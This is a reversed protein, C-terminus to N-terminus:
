RDRELLAVAQEPEGFLAAGLGILGLVGAFDWLVLRSPASGPPTACAMLGTMAAAVLLGAGTVPYALHPPLVAWAVAFCGAGAALAGAGAALMGTWTAPPRYPRDSRLRALLEARNLIDM